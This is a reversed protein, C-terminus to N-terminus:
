DYLRSLKDILMQAKAQEIAEQQSSDDKIEQAQSDTLESTPPSIPNIPKKFDDERNCSTLALFVAGTIFSKNLLVKNIKPFSLRKLSQESKEM